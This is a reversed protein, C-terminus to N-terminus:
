TGHGDVLVAGWEALVAAIPMMYSVEDGGAFILGVAARGDETVVLAGSDGVTSFPGGAGTHIAWTNRFYVTGNFHASRYALGFATASVGLVEGHTLGTSRGVKKVRLGGVPATVATPTDYAGAGQMSTVFDPRTIRFLAADLEQPQVQGAGAAALPTCAYHAGIATPPMQAPDADHPAPALIHMGERSHNCGGTIHNASLGYLQGDPLRVLAGLTGAGPLPAANVSSGCALRDRHTYCRPASPVTLDPLSPSNPAAGAQGIYRVANGDISAPLAQLLDGAIRKQTLVVLRDRQADVVVAAIQLRDAPTQDPQAGAALGPFLGPEVRVDLPPILSREALAGHIQAWALIREATRTLDHARSM